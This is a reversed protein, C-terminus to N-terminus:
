HHVPSGGPSGAVQDAVATSRPRNLTLLLFALIVPAFGGVYGVVPILAGGSRAVGIVVYAATLAAGAFCLVRVAVPIRSARDNAFGPARRGLFFRSWDGQAYHAATWIYAAVVINGWWATLWVWALTDIVRGGRERFIIWAIMLILGATLDSNIFVQWPDGTGALFTDLGVGHDMGSNLAVNATNLAMVVVLFLAVMKVLKM